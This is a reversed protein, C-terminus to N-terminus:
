GAKQHYPRFPANKVEEIQMIGDIYRGGIREALRTGGPTLRRLTDAAFM